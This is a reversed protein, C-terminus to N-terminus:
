VWIPHQLVLDTFQVFHDVGRVSSSTGSGFLTEGLRFIILAFLFRVCLILVIGAVFPQPVVPRLLPM